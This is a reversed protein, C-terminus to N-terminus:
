WASWSAAQGRTAFAREVMGGLRALDAFDYNALQPRQGRGCHLSERQRQFHAAHRLPRKQAAM